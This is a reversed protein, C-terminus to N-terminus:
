TLVILTGTHAPLVFKQSTGIRRSSSERVVSNVHAEHADLAPGSLVQVTDFFPASIQLNQTAEKNLIAVIVRGDPRRAAYAVANVTGPDFEVPLMTAGAFAAAFKMGFGVPEMVYKGNLKGDVGAGALTGENAIPTYFPKPHPETPDKMLAEGHFVGGVSVAQAHGSGGHLNVGCYGLSMLQFLYDAGWLASALVDSVGWKGGRYVTNGETMRYTKGGMKAAAERTMAAKEAVKPDIKLLNEINAEPNSPPGNWYYHHSMTVVNPKDEVAAWRDAIQPLWTVDSAVDPLGFKAAPIAKQVARAIKLWEGLYADVNWTEPDRLHGKFLDVENGVQFYQLRPGLREHVYVAEAVDVEPTGYGLNLGYICTWGTAKLFGDLNDVAQPTIAFVTAATPEGEHKWPSDVRKPAEQGPTAKWWGFESTNGGLRLVGRPAMARFQQVLGVNEPSFFTADELQMNEYSLGIFDMPVKPGPGGARLKLVAEFPASAERTAAAAQPAAAQPAAQALLASPAALFGATLAANQVFTRRSVTRHTM